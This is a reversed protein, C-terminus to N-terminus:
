LLVRRQRPTYHTVTVVGVLTISLFVQFVRCGDGSSAVGFWRDMGKLPRGYNYVNEEIIIGITLPPPHQFVNIFIM